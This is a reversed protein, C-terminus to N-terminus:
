PPVLREVLGAMFQPEGTLSVTVTHWGDATQTHLCAHDWHGGDDLPGETWGPSSARVWALVSAWEALVWPVRGVPVEAMAELTTGGLGDEVLVWDLYQLSPPKVHFM